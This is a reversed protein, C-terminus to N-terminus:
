DEHLLGPMFYRTNPVMRGPEIREGCQTCEYHYIEPYWDSAEIDTVRKLTELHGRPIGGSGPADPTWRHLHGAADVYKWNLDIITLPTVEIMDRSSM